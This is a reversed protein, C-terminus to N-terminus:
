LLELSIFRALLDTPTGGTIFYMILKSYSIFDEMLDRRVQSLITTHKLWIGHTDV